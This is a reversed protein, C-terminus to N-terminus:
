GLRGGALFPDARKDVRPACQVKKREFGNIPFMDWRLHMDASRIMRVLAHVVMTGREEMSIILPGVVWRRVKTELVNHGSITM